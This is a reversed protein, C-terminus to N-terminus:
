RSKKSVFCVIMKQMVLPMWTRTLGTQAVLHNGFAIGLVIRIERTEEQEKQLVGQDYAFIAASTAMASSLRIDEPKIFGKSQFEVEDRKRDIREIINPSFTLIEYEKESEDSRRWQNVTVSCIFNPQMGKLDAMTLPKEAKM